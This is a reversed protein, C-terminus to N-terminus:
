VFRIPVWQATLWLAGFLLIYTAFVWALETGLRLERMGM